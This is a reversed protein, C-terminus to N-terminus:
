SRRNAIVFDDAFIWQLACPVLPANVRTSRLARSRVALVGSLDGSLHSDSLQTSIQAALKVVWCKLPSIKVQDLPNQTKTIMKVSLTCTYYNFYLSLQHPANKCDARLEIITVSSSQLDSYVTVHVPTLIGLVTYLLFMTIRQWYWNACNVIERSMTYRKSM